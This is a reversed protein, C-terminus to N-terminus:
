DDKKHQNLMQELQGLVQRLEQNTKEWEGKWEEASLEGVEVKALEEDSLVQRKGKGEVLYEVTTNLAAALVIIQSPTFTKKKGTIIRSTIAPTENILKSLELQNLGNDEMLKKARVNINMDFIINIM